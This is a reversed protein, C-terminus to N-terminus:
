GGGGGTSGIGLTRKVLRTHHFGAGIMDEGAMDPAQRSGIIQDHRVSGTFRPLRSVLVCKLLFEAARHRLDHPTLPLETDVDGAVAFEAFGHPVADVVARPEAVTKM